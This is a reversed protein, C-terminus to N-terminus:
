HIVADEIISNNNEQTSLEMSNNMIELKQGQNFQKYKEKYAKSQLFTLYKHNKFSGSRVKVGKNLM